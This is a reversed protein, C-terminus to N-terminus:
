SRAAARRSSGSKEAKRIQNRVKRDLQNWLAESTDPLRLRM